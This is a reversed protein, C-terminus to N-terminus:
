WLQRHPVAARGVTGLTHACVPCHRVVLLRAAACVCPKAHDQLSGCAACVLVTGLTCVNAIIQLVGVNAKAPSANAPTVTSTTTPDHQPLPTAAAAARRHARLQLLGSLAAVAAIALLAVCVAIFAPGTILTRAHTLLPPSAPKPPSM